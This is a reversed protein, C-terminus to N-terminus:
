EGMDISLIVFFWAAATTQLAILAKNVIRVKVDTVLLSSSLSPKTILVSNAQRSVYEPVLRTHPSPVCSIVKWWNEQFAFHCGDVFVDQHSPLFSFTHEPCCRTGIEFPGRVCDLYSSPISRCNFGKCNERM